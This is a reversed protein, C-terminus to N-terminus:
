RDRKEAMPLDSHGFSVYSQPFNGLVNDRNEWDYWFEFELYLDEKLHARPVSFIVSKGSLLHHPTCTDGGSYGQPVKATGTTKVNYVIGVDGYQKSVVLSCFSIGWRTNNNLRLWIRDETEDAFLPPANGSRVFEIYVSPRDKRLLLSHRRDQANALSAVTLLILWGSLFTRILFSLRM